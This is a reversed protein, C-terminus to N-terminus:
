FLAKLKLDQLQLVLRKIEKKIKQREKPDQNKPIKKLKRFAQTLREELQHIQQQYYLHYATLPM